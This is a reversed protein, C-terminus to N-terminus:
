GKIRRHLRMLGGTLALIALAAWITLVILGGVLVAGLGTALGKLM